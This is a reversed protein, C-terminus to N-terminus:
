TNINKNNNKINCLCLNTKINTATCKYKFYEHILVNYMYQTQIIKNLRM